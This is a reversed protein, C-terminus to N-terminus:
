SGEQARTFTLATVQIDFQENSETVVVEDIAIARPGGRLGDLFKQVSVMDPATAQITIDIQMRDPTTATPQATPDTTTESAAADATADSAVTADAAVDSAADVPTETPETTAAPAPADETGGTRPAYPVAEGRTVSVLQAGSDAEARAIREFVEDLLPLAPIQASLAAVSKETEELTEQQKQLAAIQTEYVQNTGEVQRQQEQAAFVGGVLPLVGVVIGLVLVAATVLAGILTILQKTM